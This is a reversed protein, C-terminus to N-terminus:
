DKENKGTIALIESAIEEIAKGTVNIVSWLPQRSYIRLAYRLEKSVYSYEAYEGTAGGLYDHRVKRLQSLRGPYTTFGFVKKPEIEYIVPPPDIGWIIPVNAVLWGKMALFISLPTKFTRSVGLLVIDAKDLDHIRMGDDHRFTFEVAEIRKFYDKNIKHFLGPKESPANALQISLRMLLPGMLDITEVNHKRATRVMVSRMEDSVLTHVIFAKHNVAETVVELVQKKTRIGPKRITQIDIGEFQTRAANLSQEATRGTGDSVVFIYYM